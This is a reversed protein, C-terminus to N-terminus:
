SRMVMRSALYAVVETDGINGARVIAQCNRAKIDDGKLDFTECVWRCIKVDDYAAKRLIANDDARAQQATFGTTNVLWKGIDVANGGTTLARRLAKNRNACVDKSTLQFYRHWEELLPINNRKIMTYMIQRVQQRTPVFKVTGIIYQFAELQNEPTDERALVLKLFYMADKVSDIGPYCEQVSDKAEQSLEPLVKPPSLKSKVIPVTVVPVPPTAVPTTEPTTASLLDPRAAPTPAADSKQGLVDLMLNTFVSMNVPTDSMYSQVLTNVLDCVQDNADTETPRNDLLTALLNPAEAPTPTTFRPTTPAPPAMPLRTCTTRDQEQRQRLITDVSIPGTLPRLHVQSPAPAFQIKCRPETPRAEPVEVVPTPLSIEGRSGPMRVIPAYHKQPRVPTPISIEANRHVPQPNTPPKSVCCNNDQDSCNKLLASMINLALSALQSSSTNDNQSSDSKQVTM